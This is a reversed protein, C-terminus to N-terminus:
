LGLLGFSLAAELGYFLPGPGFAFNHSAGELLPHSFDSLMGGKQLPIRRNRPNMGGFGPSFKALM